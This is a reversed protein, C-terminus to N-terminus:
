ATYLIIISSVADAECCRPKRNSASIEPKRHNEWSASLCCSSIGLYEKAFREIQATILAGRRRM